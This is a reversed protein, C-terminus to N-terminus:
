DHLRMITLNYAEVSARKEADTLADWRADNDDFKFWKLFSVYALPSCRYGNLTPFLAQLIIHDCTVVFRRFCPQAEYKSVVHAANPHHKLLCSLDSSSLRRQEYTEYLTFFSELTHLNVEM